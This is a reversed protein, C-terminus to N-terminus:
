FGFESYFVGNQIHEIAKRIYPITNEPLNDLPFWDMDDCKEPEMNKPEGGWKHARVFVDVRGRKGVDTFSEWRNMVHVVELDEMKLDVDSEEKSERIIAQRFGEEAEVHGAVLMYNGDEYGTNYRRHLLVKGDKILVMYSAPILKFREKKM